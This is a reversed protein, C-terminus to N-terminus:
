SENQVEANTLGTAEDTEDALSIDIPAVFGNMTANYLEDFDIPNDRMHQICLAKGNWKTEDATGKKWYTWAGASELTGNKIAVEVTERYKDFGIGFFITTEIVGFPNGVKNKIVKIEVEQGIPTNKDMIINTRRIKLRVSHFFPLAKGGSVTEPNGM